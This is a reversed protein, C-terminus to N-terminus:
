YLPCLHSEFGPNRVGHRSSEVEGCGCWSGLALLDARLQPSSLPHVGSVSGHQKQLVPSLGKWPSVDPLVPSCLYAGSIQYPGGVRVVCWFVSMEVQSEASSHWPRVPKSLEVRCNLAVCPRMGRWYREPRSVHLFEWWFLSVCFPSLNRKHDLPWTICNWHHLERERPTPWSLKNPQGQGQGCWGSRGTPAM